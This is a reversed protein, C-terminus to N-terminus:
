EALGACSAGIWRGKFDLHVKGAQPRDTDMSGVLSEPTQAEVRVQSTSAHPPPCTRELVLKAASKSVVSTKCGPEDDDSDKIIRDQDLDEKTVCSKVSHIRPKGARAQMSQEVRARQEPPMKALADPPILSGSSQTTFTMEWAGPKANFSEAQAASTPWLFLPNSLLGLGLLYVFRGLPPTMRTM